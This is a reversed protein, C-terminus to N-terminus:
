VRVGIVLIDDTQEINQKYNMIFEDLETAQQQIPIHQISLLLERFKSKTLKRELQGGFQDAFGDTFLYISTDPQLNFQHNTFLKINDNYGICQKDAKAETLQGNNILLLSNNAGAWELTKTKTNLACISIDMGDQIEEESKSFNELV